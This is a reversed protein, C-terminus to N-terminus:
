LMTELEELEWGGTELPDALWVVVVPVLMVLGAAVWFGTMTPFVRLLVAALALLVRSWEELTFGRLTMFFYGAWLYLVMFVLVCTVIAGSLAIYRADRRDIAGLGLRDALGDFAVVFFTPILVLAELGSFTAADIGYEGLISALHWRAICRLPPPPSIYRLITDQAGTAAPLPLCSAM